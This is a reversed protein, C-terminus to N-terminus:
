WGELCAAAEGLLDANGGTLYAVLDGLLAPPSDGRLLKRLLDPHEPFHGRTGPDTDALRPLGIARAIATARDPFYRHFSRPSVGAREAVDTVSWENYGASTLWFRVAELLREETEVRHAERSAGAVHESPPAPTTM